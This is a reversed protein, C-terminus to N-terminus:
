RTSHSVSVQRALRLMVDRSNAQGPHASSGGLPVGDALGFSPSASRGPRNDNGRGYQDGGQSAVDGYPVNWAFVSDVPDAGHLLFSDYGVQITQSEGPWLTIDNDSYSVPLVENDGPFERGKAGRRLDVRVFFAVTNGTNTITVNSVSNQGDPLGWQRHSSATVKLTTRPLQQLETLNGYADPNPFVPVAATGSTNNDEQTSVWYVNRDVVQGHERMILEVFYTQAPQPPKTTAPVNPKIVANMVGQAPLTIGSATQDDLIAGSFSHVISEVSLGSQTTGSLNDLTVTNNDAVASNDFVYLAHLSENAKKAGFYGGNTDYDTNYLGWLLTPFAHNVLWFDTGTSPNVPDTSHDINAEFQARDAEYMQPQAEEVFQNLGPAVHAGGSLPKPAQGTLAVATGTATAPNSLTWVSAGSIAANNGARTAAASITFVNGNIATITAGGPIGRGTIPSGVAFQGSTVTVATLVTAGRSWTATGSTSTDQLTTGPAIGNGTIPSGVPFPSGGTHVPNTVIPSGATLDGTAAPTGQSPLWSGYRNYLAIDFNNMTGFNFNTTPCATEWNMHYQNTAFFCQSQSLNGDPLQTTPTGLTAQDSASLFRNLSDLTPVTDGPSSESDFGTSFGGDDGSTNTYWYSPAGYDYPGEKEGAPGLIPSSNEDASSIFPVDFDVKKWADLSLTEQRPIPANDSWSYNFVSPHNRLREGIRLASLFMIHFDRDTLNSGDSAPQWSDDCCQFGGDIIMGAKDMQEYFDEPMEKGETRVGQLGLSKILQIQNAADKSSYRLFEDEGWGGTRWVFPKGNVMFERVGDPWLDSPPTLMSQVTRIGFTETPATDSVAHHQSVNEALSYLPQGGMQWPWWLQPHNITLAPNSSPDFVVTQTTNAPITVTQQVTAVLRGQPSRVQATLTATQPVSTPNRVDGKVTLASSSMDPANDEVVHANSLSVGGYTDIQVPFQIGSNHDPAIQTWDVNDLTFMTAPQNPMVEFAISNTAGARNVLDAINFNFQTYDGSVTESTAVETGNVWVDAEGVIGNVILKMHQGSKFNHPTAFDARFWWPVAFLANTPLARNEGEEQGWCQRMNDTFVVEQLSNPDNPDHAAFSCKPNPVGPAQLGNQALAGIETLGGGADDTTEPIWGKTKFGPASIDAGTLGTTNATSQVQWHTSLTSIDAGAPAARLAFFGLLLVACLALALRGPLRRECGLVPM